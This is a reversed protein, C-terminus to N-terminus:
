ATHESGLIDGRISSCLSALTPSNHERSLSLAIFFSLPPSARVVTSPHVRARLSILISSRQNTKKLPHKTLLPGNPTTRKIGLSCTAALRERRIPIEFAPVACSEKKIRELRSRERRSGNPQWDRTILLKGVKM